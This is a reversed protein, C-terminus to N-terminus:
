HGCLGAPTSTRCVNRPFLNGAGTRDWFLDPRNRLLVNGQVLNNAPPARLFDSVVAVRGSFPTPGSSVNGTILQRHGPDDHSGALAVGVGSMAPGEESSDCARTNGRIVNARVSLRGATGPLGTIGSLAIIGICNGQLLNRV